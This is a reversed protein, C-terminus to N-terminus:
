GLQRLGAGPVDSQVCAQSSRHAASVLKLSFLSLFRWKCSFFLSLQLVGSMKKFGTILMNSAIFVFWYELFSPSTFPWTREAASATFLQVWDTKLAARIVGCCLLPLYLNWVAWLLFWTWSLAEFLCVCFLWEANLYGWNCSFYDFPKLRPM